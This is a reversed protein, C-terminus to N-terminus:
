FYYEWIQTTTNSSSCSQVGIPSFTATDGQITMCNSLVKIKGGLSFQGNKWPNSAVCGDWLVVKSGSTPQGGSVNLCRNLNNWLSVLGAGPFTFRQRTESSSCSALILEEGMAGTTTQAQVCNGNSNKIQNPRRSGEWHFFDWKQANTGDCPKVQLKGSVATVCMNGMAHWEVGKTEFDENADNNCSWSIVPNPATGGSVNLCHKKSGTAFQDTASM